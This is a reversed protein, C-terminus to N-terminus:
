VHVSQGDFLFYIFSNSSLMAGAARGGDLRSAAPCVLSCGGFHRVGGRSLPHNGSSCLEAPLVVHFGLQVSPSSLSFISIIILAHGKRETTQRNRCKFRFIGLGLIVTQYSFFKFRIFYYVSTCTLQIMSKIFM